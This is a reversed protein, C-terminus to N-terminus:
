FCKLDLQVKHFYDWSFFEQITEFVDQRLIIGKGSWIVAFTRLMETSLALCEKRWPVLNFEIRRLNTFEQQLKNYNPLVLEYFSEIERRLGEEHKFAGLWAEVDYSSNPGLSLDGKQYPVFFLKKFVVPFFMIQSVTALRQKASQPIVLNRQPQFIYHLDFADKELELPTTLEDGLHNDNIKGNLIRGHFLKAHYIDIGDILPNYSVKKDVIAIKM